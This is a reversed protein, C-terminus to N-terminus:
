IARLRSGRLEGQAELVPYAITTLLANVQKLDRLTDLQISAAGVEQPGSQRLRAFHRHGAEKEATRLRDKRQVLLRATEADESVILNFALRANALVTAHFACLERWDEPSFAIGRDAKKRVQALLNRAIIDGVQELKLCADLLEECRRAEEASMEHEVIRALYLRIAAHRRDVRDDLAALDRIAQADAGDYLEIVRDLMAEITECMRVVERTAHVLAQRPHDLAAEDLASIEIEPAAAEGRPARLAALRESLRVVLPSLPLGIVFILLNFAIHANVIRDSAAAGLLSLDPHGLLLLALVALSGAGRMLLNGLPVVQFAPAAGRTLVPAIFSSGLNVGLVMVVGLEPGIAGQGALTALLLVAAISSHLLYTLLAMILYATVPDSQLYGALVPLLTSDRLPVSAQAMLELSLILLGIGVLVRGVQRWDRRETMLFAATGAILCLPSLLTLDFSLVRVLVASGVEAGRVALVGALGTMLGTGAFSGVLLTVATSSQLLVALGFGAGAALVPRNMTQRLKHRLLKGWGREVGTRVMRTAWLLLAVAGAMHLLVVTGSM